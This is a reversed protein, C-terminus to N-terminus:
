IKGSQKILDITFDLYKNKEDLLDPLTLPVEYDPKVGDHENEACPLYYISHSTYINMGSNPLKYRSIDGNSILPMGTEEGVILADSYCKVIAAFMTSASYTGPGTLVYLNGQFKNSKEIPPMPNKSIVFYDGEQKGQDKRGAIFEKTERSIRIRKKMFNCYPKESIYSLLSDTLESFGGGETIDIIVNYIQRNKIETFSSDIQHLLARSRRFRSVKLYAIDNNPFSLTLLEQDHKPFQKWHAGKVTTTKIGDASAYELEFSEFNGNILRYWNPFAENGLKRIKNELREGPLYPIINGLIEIVSEGNIKLIETGMNLKPDESLNSKVYLRNEFVITEFPLLPNKVEPLIAGTYQLTTHGDLIVLPQLMKFLAHVTMSTSISDRLALLSKENSSGLYTPHIDSLVSIVTDIDTKVQELTLSQSSVFGSYLLFIIILLKKM